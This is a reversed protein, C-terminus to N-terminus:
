LSSTMPSWSTLPSSSWSMRASRSPSSLISLVSFSITSNMARLSCALSSRPETLQSVGDVEATLTALVGVVNDLLGVVQLCQLPPECPGSSM